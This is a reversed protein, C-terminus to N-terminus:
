RGQRALRDMVQNIDLKRTENIKHVGVVVLNQDIEVELGQDRAAKIFNTIFTVRERRELEGMWKRNVIGSNIRDAPLDSEAVNAEHLDDYVREASNETDMTVGLNKEPDPLTLYDEASPEHTLASRFQMNEVESKRMMMQQKLKTDQAYRDVNGNQDAAPTTSALEAKGAVPATHPATRTLAPAHKPAPLAFMALLAVLSAAGAFLMRRPFRKAESKLTEVKNSAM